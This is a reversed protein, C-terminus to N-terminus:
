PGFIFGGIEDVDVNKSLYHQIQSIPNYQLGSFNTNDNFYNLMNTINNFTPLLTPILNQLDTFWEKQLFIKYKKGLIGFFLIM